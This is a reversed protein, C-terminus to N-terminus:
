IYTKRANAWSTRLPMTKLANWLRFQQIFDILCRQTKHAFVVCCVCFQSNCLFFRTAFINANRGCRLGACFRDLDFTPWWWWCVIFGGFFVVCIWWVSYLCIPPSLPPVFRILLLFVPCLSPLTNHTHTHYAIRREQRWMHQAHTYVRNRNIAPSGLMMMMMMSTTLKHSQLVDDDTM